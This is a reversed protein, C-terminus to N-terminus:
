SHPSNTGGGQSDQTPPVAWPDFPALLPEVKAPPAPAIRRLLGDIWGRTHALWEQVSTRQLVNVECVFRMEVQLRPNPGTVRVPLRHFPAGVELLRGKPRESAELVECDQVRSLKAAGGTPWLRSPHLSRHKDMNNFEQLLVLAHQQPEDEHFPQAQRILALDAGTVGPLCSPHRQEFHAETECVPFAVARERKPDLAVGSRAVAAWAVHDLASRYNHAIDGLRLGWEDPLPTMETIVLDFAQEDPRYDARVQQLPEPGDDAVFSSIEEYLSDAHVAAWAWKWWAGDFGGSM